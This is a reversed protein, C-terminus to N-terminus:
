LLHIIINYKKQLKKKTKMNIVENIRILIRQEEKQLVALFKALNPNSSRICNNFHGHYGELANKTLPPYSLLRDNYNWFTKKHLNDTSTLFLGDFTPLLCQFQKCNNKHDNLLNNFYFEVNDISIYSLSILKKECERFWM